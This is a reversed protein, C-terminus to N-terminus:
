KQLKEIDDLELNRWSESITDGVLAHIGDTGGKGIKENKTTKIGKLIAELWCLRM